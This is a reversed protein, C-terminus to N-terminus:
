SRPADGGDAPPRGGSLKEVTFLAIGAPVAAIGTLHHLVHLGIGLAADKPGRKRLLLRYFSGNLSVLAATSAAALGFRRTALASFGVLSAAASLRHRWGLNLASSGSGQHHLLLVTWPVGRAVFDTRLMSALTWEKLHTGQIAPDLEIRAGSAVLRMGLEIDEVTPREFREDFGGSAQFTDRRIAGLGAWFTAAPGAGEHHVHHHLLNRFTSVLGPGTPADDYSGFVAALAPDREFHARIRAFADQHVAVDADVFVLLDGSARSSGLNRAHAPGLNAPEEVVIVEEPADDAGDIAALCAELTSPRNTAPVIASLRLAM